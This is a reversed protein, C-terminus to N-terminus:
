TPTGTSDILSLLLRAAVSPVPHFSQSSLGKGTNAEVDAEENLVVGMHSKVKVLVTEGPHAALKVALPVIVDKHKQLKAQPIFDQQDWGDLILM